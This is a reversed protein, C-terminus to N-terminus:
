SDMEKIETQRFVGTDRLIGCIRAYEKNTYNSLHDLSHSDKKDSINRTPMQNALIKLLSDNHENQASSNKWCTNRYINYILLPILLAPSIQM